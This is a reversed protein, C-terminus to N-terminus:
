RFISSVQLAATRGGDAVLDGVLERIVGLQAPGLIQVLNLGVFVTEL